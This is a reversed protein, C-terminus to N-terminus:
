SVTFEFFFETVIELFKCVTSLNTSTNFCTIEALGHVAEMVCLYENCNCRM